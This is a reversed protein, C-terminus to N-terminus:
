PAPTAEVAGALQANRSVADVESWVEAIRGCDLRFINVGTWTASRGSAPIDGLPGDQTGTAAYREVLIDGEVVWFEITYHLDSFAAPFAGMMAMIGDTGTVDPYGGAAHHVVDPDLVMPLAALNRQNIAEEHWVEAIAIKEERTMTPCGGGAEPSGSQGATIAPWLGVILSLGLLVAASSSRSM